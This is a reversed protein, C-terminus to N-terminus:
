ETWGEVKERQKKRVDGHWCRCGVREMRRETEGEERKGHWDGSKWGSCKREKRENRAAGRKIPEEVKRDTKGKKRRPGSTREDKGRSENM